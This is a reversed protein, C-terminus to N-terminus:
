AEGIIRGSGCGSTDRRLARPVVMVALQVAPADRPAGHISAAPPPLPAAHTPRHTPRHHQGGIAGHKPVHTTTTTTTATATATATVLTTSYGVMSVNALMRWEGLPCTQEGSPLIPGLSPRTRPAPYDPLSTNDNRTHIGGGRRRGAQRDASVTGWMDWGHWKM